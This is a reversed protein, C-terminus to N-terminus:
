GGFVETYRADGALMTKNTKEFLAQALQRGADNDSPLHVGRDIRSDAVQNALKDLKSQMEPYIAGLVKALYAAQATHGSPYSPTQASELYDYAFEIGHREALVNPRLAGFYDKHIKISPVISRSIGAIMYMSSPLGADMLVGNFLADMDSDLVDQMQEPCKRNRYQDSVKSLEAVREMESPPPPILIALDKNRLSKMGKSFSDGWVLAKGMETTFLVNMLRGMADVIKKREEGHPYPQAFRSSDQKLASAASRRKEKVENLVKKAAVVDRWKERAEPSQKARELRADSYMGWKNKKAKPDREIIKDLLQAYSSRAADSQAYAADYEPKMREFLADVDKNVDEQARLTPLLTALPRDTGQVLYTNKRGNSALTDQIYTEFARAFMEESTSWYPMGQEFMIADRYFQSSGEAVDAAGQKVANKIAINAIQVKSKAKKIESKARSFDGFNTRALANLDVGEYKKEVADLEDKAEKYSIKLEALHEEQAIISEGKIAVMVDNVAKKIEPNTINRSTSLYEGSEIKTALVNDLFHGWEHALSGGGSMNTLNIIKAKPEYHAAAAGEKFGRAGVGRAGLAIALPKDTLHGLGMKDPPINLMDALDLMSSYAWGLHQERASHAMNKGFQVNRLGCAELFDQSDAEGVATGGVRELADTRARSLRFVEDQAKKKAAIQDDVTGWGTEELAKAERLKKRFGDTPYNGKALNFLGEGLPSILRVAEKRREEDRFRFRYGVHKREGDVKEYVYETGLVSMSSGPNERQIKLAADMKNRTEERLSVSYDESSKTYTESYHVAQTYDKLEKLLTMGDEYTRVNDLAKSIFVCSKHFQKNLVERQAESWSTPKNMDSLAVGDPSSMNRLMRKWSDSRGGFPHKSILNYIAVKMSHGGATVGAERDAEMSPRKFLSQKTFTGTYDVNDGTGHAYTGGTARFLDAEDARSGYVHEGADLIKRQPVSPESVQEVQPKEESPEVAREVEPTEEVPPDELEPIRESDPMTDFNDESETIPEADPMTDFNNADESAKDARAARQEYYIGGREHIGIRAIEHAKAASLHAQKEESSRAKNAKDKHEEIKANHNERRQLNAKQRPTKEGSALPMKDQVDALLKQVREELKQKSRPSDDTILMNSLVDAIEGLRREGVSALNRLGVSSGKRRRMINLVLKYADRLPKDKLELEEAMKFASEIANRRVDVAVKRGKDTIKFFTERGVQNGIASRVSGRELFGQEVLKLTMKTGYPGDPLEDQDSQVYRFLATAAALSLGEQKLIEKTSPRPPHEYADYRSKADSVSEPMTDFNDESEAVTKDIRQQEFVDRDPTVSLILGRPNNIPNLADSLKSIRQWFTNMYSNGEYVYMTVSHKEAYYAASVLSEHLSGNTRAFLKKQNKLINSFDENKVPDSIEKGQSEPEVDPMTDFNDESESEAVEDVFERGKDSILWGKVSTFFALAASELADVVAPFEIGIQRRAEQDRTAAMKGLVEFAAKDLPFGEPVDEREHLHDSDPKEQTDPTSVKGTDMDVAVPAKDAEQEKKKGELFAIRRDILALMQRPSLETKTKDQNQYGDRTRKSPESTGQKKEKPTRVDEDVHAAFIARFKM